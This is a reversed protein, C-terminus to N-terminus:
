PARLVYFGPAGQGADVETKAIGVPCESHLFSGWERWGMGAMAGALWCFDDLMCEIYLIVLM